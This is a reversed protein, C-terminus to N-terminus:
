KRHDTRRDYDDDRVGTIKRLHAALEEEARRDRLAAAPHWTVLLDASHAPMYQVRYWKGRAQPYPPLDAFSLIRWATLGLAVVVVPRVIALEAQLLPRSAMVEYPHPTRNGPPRYLVSNTVFALRRELGARKLLHDLLQGARGVFPVLQRAEEAGPAEGVLMVPSMLPGDPPVLPSRAALDALVPLRQYEGLALSLLRGREEATTV